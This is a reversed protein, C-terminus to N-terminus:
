ETPAPPEPQDPHAAQESAGSDAKRLPAACRPCHSFSASVGRGCKPCVPPLRLPLDTPRNAGQEDPSRAFPRELLAVIDDESVEPKPVRVVARCVPCLGARGAMSDKVNLVHGNPCRTQIAM